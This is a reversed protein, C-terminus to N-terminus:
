GMLAWVIPRLQQVFVERHRVWRGPYPLSYRGGQWGASVIARDVNVEISRLMTVIAEPRLEGLMRVLSPEAAQCAARRAAARLRDVPEDCLDILKCGRAAFVEPFTAHSISTDLGQFVEFIARYLGSDQRFFSRGSAPPAEGIFLLRTGM